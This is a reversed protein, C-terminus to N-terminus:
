LGRTALLVAGAAAALAVVLAPAALAAALSTTAPQLMGLEIGVVVLAITGLARLALRRRIRARTAGLAALVESERRRRRSGPFWAAVLLASALATAGAVLTAAAPELGTPAAAFETWEQEVTGFPAVSGDLGDNRNPEVTVETPVRTASVTPLVEFGAEALSAAVVAIRDAADANSGAVDVRVRVADILPVHETEAADLVSRLPALFATGSDAVGTGAFTMPQDLPEVEDGDSDRVWTTRGSEYAGLPAASDRGLTLVPADVTGVVAVSPTYMVDLDSDIGARFPLPERTGFVPDSGFQGIGNVGWGTSVGNATLVAPDGVERPLSFGNLFAPLPQGFFESAESEPAPLGPWASALRDPDGLRAVDATTVSGLPVPETDGPVEYERSWTDASWDGPAAPGLDAVDLTLGSGTFEGSAVVLPVVAQDAALSTYWSAPMDGAEAAEATETLLERVSREDAESAAADIPRGLASQLGGFASARWSEATATLLEGAQEPHAAVWDDVDAITFSAPGQEDSLGVLPELFPAADGLLEAEAVPDVLVLTGSVPPPSVFDFYIWDGIRSGQVGMSWDGDASVIAVPSEVIERCYETGPSDNPVQVGDVECTAGEGFTEPPAIFTFDRDSRDIIVTAQQQEIGDGSIAVSYAEPAPDPQGLAVPVAFLTSTGPVFLDIGMRTVPAAVGVGAVDRITQLDAETMRSASPALTTNPPLRVVDADDDPADTAGGRLLEAAGTAGGGDRLAAAIADDRDGGQGSPLRVLLDYVGREADSARLAPALGTPVFAVAALAAALLAAALLPWREARLYRATRRRGRARDDARRGNAAERAARSRARRLARDPSRRPSTTSDDDRPPRPEPM